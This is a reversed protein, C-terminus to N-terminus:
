RAARYNTSSKEQIRFRVVNAAGVTVCTSNYARIVLDKDDAMVFTDISIQWEALGVEKGATVRHVVRAAANYNAQDAIRDVCTGINRDLVRTTPRNDAANALPALLVIAVTLIGTKGLINM